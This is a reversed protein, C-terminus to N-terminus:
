DTNARLMRRNILVFLAGVALLLVSITSSYGFRLSRFATRFLYTALVESAYNPGGGTMIWILDFYRISNVTVLLITISITPWLLPLQIKFFQKVPTAGDIAAAEMLEEPINHLAMYYLLMQYGIFQWILVVIVSGLALNPDGLWVPPSQVGMRGLIANILGFNPNYIQSWLIGIMASSLVVPLFYLTRFFNRGKVRRNYLVVALLLGLPIQFFVSFFAITLSNMVVRGVLPDRVLEFYNDVGIFRMATIGDWDFFSYYISVFIPYIVAACFWIVAPAIFVIRAVPHVKRM